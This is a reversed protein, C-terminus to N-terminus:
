DYVGSSTGYLLAELESDTYNDINYNCKKCRNNQLLCMIGVGVFGGSLFGIVLGIWYM